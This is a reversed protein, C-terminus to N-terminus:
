GDSRAVTDGARDVVLVDVAVPAGQLVEAAVDRARRAILGALPLGAQRAIELAELASNARAIRAATGADAGLETAREALWGSDVQSRGSHLDLHGQALKALKGFGGAITLRPIPRERLYKLLGGAFDGMDLLATEPLDYLRKVAAESTSGTSGAVHRLGAARAVDVGRHISAIWAACSYPVVIGTTGLISLGGLIGLRPNWTKEALAAGGPISIEVLADAAVGAARAVEDIGAAILARPVPNIAPEGVALPLGPKTVTGVGEGARFAVGSGPAGKRVTAVVLAGHTVDPDDGADKVIGARAYGDGLTERALAFAPREGRPLEIEVPDLFRGTALAAFASKAAAAACAGTTWGRRLPTGGGAADGAERGDREVDGDTARAM